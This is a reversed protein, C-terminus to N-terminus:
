GRRGLVASAGCVPCVVDVDDGCLALGCTDCDGEFLLRGYERDAPGAARAPLSPAVGRYPAPRGEAPAPRAVGLYRRQERYPAWDGGDSDGLARALVQRFQHDDLALLAPVLREASARAAATRIDRLSLERLAALAAEASTADNM